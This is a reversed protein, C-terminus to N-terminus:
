ISRAIEYAESVCSRINGVQKGDDVRYVEVGIGLLEATIDERPKLGVAM